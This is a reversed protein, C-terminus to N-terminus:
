GIHLGASLGASLRHMSVLVAPLEIIGHPLIGAALFLPGSQQVASYAV